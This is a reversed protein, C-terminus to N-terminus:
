KRRIVSVLKGWLGINRRGIRRRIEYLSLLITLVGMVFHVPFVWIMQASEVMWGYTMFYIGGSLLFILAALGDQAVSAEGKYWEYFRFNKRVKSVVAFTIMAWIITWIDIPLRAVDDGPYVLGWSVQKGPTSGNLLGGLGGFVIALSLSVVSFDLVKWTDWSKSRAFAIIFVYLGFLGSLVNIGPFSLIALMRYVSTISEPNLLAYGLRGFILFIILSLFYGDFLEIEEFHEDRGMKWWWYLSLFLGVVM